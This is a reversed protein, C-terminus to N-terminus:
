RWGPPRSAPRRVPRRRNRRPCGSKRRRPGSGPQFPGRRRDSRWPPVSPSCGRVWGGGGRSLVAMRVGPGPLPSLAPSLLLDFASPGHAQRRLSGCWPGATAVAGKAGAVTSLHWRAVGHGDRPAVRGLRRERVVRGRLSGGSRHAGRDQLQWQARQVLSLPFTGDPWEAGMGQLWGGSAINGYWEAVSAAAPAIRAADQVQRAAQKLFPSLPALPGIEAQPSM